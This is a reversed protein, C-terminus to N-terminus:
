RRIRRGHRDPEHEGLVVIEDAFADPAQELRLGSKFDHCDGPVEVRQELGDIALPRSTTTVSM